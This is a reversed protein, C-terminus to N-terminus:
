LGCLRPSFKLVDKAALFAFIEFTFAENFKKIKRM